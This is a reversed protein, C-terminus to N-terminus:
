GTARVPAVVPVALVRAVLVRARAHVMSDPPVPADVEVTVRLVAPPVRASHGRRVLASPDRLVLHAPVALGVRDRPGVPDALVRPDVRAHLAGRDPHAELPVVVLGVEQGVPLVATAEVPAVEPDVAALAPAVVEAAAV